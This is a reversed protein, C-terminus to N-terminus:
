WAHVDSDLSLSELGMGWVEVCVQSWLKSFAAETALIWPKLHPVWTEDQWHGQTCTISLCYELGHMSM